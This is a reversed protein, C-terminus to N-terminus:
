VVFHPYSQFFVYNFIEIKDAPNALLGANQCANPCTILSSGWGGLCLVLELHVTQHECPEERFVLALATSARAAIVNVRGESDSRPM